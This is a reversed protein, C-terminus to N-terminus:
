AANGQLEFDQEGETLALFVSELSCERLTLEDVRVGARQAAAGVTDTRDTEM